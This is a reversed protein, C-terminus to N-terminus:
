DDISNFRISDLDESSSICYLVLYQLIILSTRKVVSTIGIMNNIKECIIIAVSPKENM